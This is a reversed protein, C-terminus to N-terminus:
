HKGKRSFNAVWETVWADDRVKVVIGVAEAPDDTEDGDEDILTTIECEQGSNTVAKRDCLNIAVIRDGFATPCGMNVTM